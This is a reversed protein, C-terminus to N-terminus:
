LYTIITGNLFTELDLSIAPLFFTHEKRRVFVLGRDGSQKGGKRGQNQHLLFMEEVAKGRRNLDRYSATMDYSCLNVNLLRSAVSAHIIIKSKFGYIRM